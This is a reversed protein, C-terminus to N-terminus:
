PLELHRRGRPGSARDALQERHEQADQHQRRANRVVQVQAQDSVAGPVHVLPLMVVVPLLVPVPVPVLVLVLVLVPVVRGVRGLLVELGSGIEDQGRVVQV